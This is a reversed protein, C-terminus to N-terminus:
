SLPVVLALYGPSIQASPNEEMLAPLDVEVQALPGLVREPLHALPGM